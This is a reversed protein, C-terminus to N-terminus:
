SPLLSRRLTMAPEKNKEAKAAHMTAERKEDPPESSRVELEPKHGPAGRVRVAASSNCELVRVPLEKISPNFGTELRVM